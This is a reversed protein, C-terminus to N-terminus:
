TSKHNWKSILWVERELHAGKSPQPKIHPGTWSGALTYPARPKPGRTYLKCSGRKSPFESHLTVSAKLGSKSQISMLKGSVVWVVGQMRLTYRPKLGVKVWSQCSNNLMGSLGLRTNKSHVQCNIGEQIQISSNNVTGSLGVGQMRLTYRPKLGVKVWFQCSKHLLACLGCM